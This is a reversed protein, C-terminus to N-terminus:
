FWKSREEPFVFYSNVMSASVHPLYHCHHCFGIGKVGPYKPNLVSQLSNYNVFRLNFAISQQAPVGYTERSYLYPYFSNKKTVLGQSNGPNHVQVYGSTLHFHYPHSDANDLNSYEWQESSNEQVGFNNFNENMFGDVFGKFTTSPSIILEAEQEPKLLFIPANPDRTAFNNFLTQINMNNDMTQSLQSTRPASIWPIKSPSDKEIPACSLSFCDSNLFSSLWGTQPSQDLSSLRKQELSITETKIPVVPEAYKYKIKKWLMVKMQAMTMACQTPPTDACISKGFQQLLTWSAKLRVFFNSSNTLRMMVTKIYQVKDNLYSIKFPYFSWTLNLFTSLCQKKDEITISTEAFTRNVKDCWQQVNLPKEELTPKFTIKVDAIPATTTNHYDIPTNFLQVTLSDNAIMDVNCQSTSQTIRFLCTPLVSPQFTPNRNYQDIAYNLDLESSNWMDAFLRNCGNIYESVGNPDGGQEANENDEGFLLINRQPVYPDFSPLNYYYQPNLLLTYNIGPLYEFFPQTLLSQYKLYNEEGFVIRRILSLMKSLSLEGTKKSKPKWQLFLFRKISFQKPPPIIGNELITDVQPITQLTPYSLSSPNDQQNMPACSDDPIPTPYPTSEPITFDPTPAVLKEDVLTAGFQESLDYDYAFLWAGRKFDCMDILLSVRAAPYVTIQTMPTPNMLGTDSQIVYFKQPNGEEDCVGLHLFRWNATANLLDIKVLNISTQHFLKNVFPAPSSSYWNIVSIGNVQSFASRNEDTGLNSLNATGDRNLDLDQLMLMLYNNGYEFQETVKSSADDVVQILGAMGSAVLQMEVLMPHAHYWGLESNNQIVPYEIDLVPGISTGKGFQVFMSCGDADGTVNFSHLHINTNYGTLNIWKIHPRTGRKWRFFPWGFSRDSALKGNILVQSGFIPSKDKGKKEANLGSPKADTSFKHRRLQINVVVDQQIRKQTSLDILPPLPVPIM